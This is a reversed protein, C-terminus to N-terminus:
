EGRPVIRHEPKDISVQSGPEVSHTLLVNAGIISGEGITVPGLVSANSYIIVDDEVTPHRKYGRVLAGSEDTKFSWAGLTVGQYMRVNDGIETTEGVVVGTAHDIFFNQGITAGPHIDVGTIRHAYETMIRPLWRVGQEHLEHAIRYVMVARFGPYCFIIEDYGTAAPDGMYAARVDGDLTKLLRPLKELLRFAQRSGRQECQDRTGSGGHLLCRTIEGALLDHAQNVTEGLHFPLNARDLGKKGFYGPFLVEFLLDLVRIVQTESPLPYQCVHQVTGREELEELMSDVVGPLRDKHPFLANGESWQGADQNEDRSRDPM